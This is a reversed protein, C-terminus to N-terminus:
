DDGRVAEKAGLSHRACEVEEMSPFTAYTLTNELPRGSVLSRYRLEWGQDKIRSELIMKAVKLM